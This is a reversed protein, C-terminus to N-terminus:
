KLLQEMLHKKQKYLNKELGISHSSSLTNYQLHTNKQIDILTPSHYVQKGNEFIPILLDQYDVYSQMSKEVVPNSYPDILMVKKPLNMEDYIMDCTSDGKIDFFRRVQLVGPTSSKVPQQSTKMKYVWHGKTDQMASLKYVGDLAGQGQGTILHTGVGWIDIKAGQKKLDRIITEDLENSAVIKTNQYGADDLIKRIQISLQTLNGSDIRVGLMTCRTKNSVAIAKKVGQISDYTDILFICDHPMVRSYADFAKEENNFAMVWSHAHTGKVPIGFLKGALVNSTAHCGGIFAARTGSLAGDIGQARRLGFEIVEDGEAAMCIRFAKTAILTQFNIINLLASELLQAQLISGKVRVLPEYPFVPTGEIVAQIDCHIKLTTIYDLFKKDFLPKKNHTKLNQLYHLDSATFKFQNIFDIASQLGAAIAFKGQFPCRRFFLTFVAKRDMIGLKWYGYAMTLEYLDILLALSLPYISLHDIPHTM